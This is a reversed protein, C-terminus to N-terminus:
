ITDTPLVGSLQSVVSVYLDSDNESPPAYKYLFQTLTKGQNAAIDAVLAVFGNLKTPYKIFKGGPAEINGPNNNQFALSKTSFYGEMHMMAAAILAYRPSVANFVEVVQPM